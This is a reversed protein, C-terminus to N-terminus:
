PRSVCNWRFRPRRSVAPTTIEIAMDAEIVGDQFNVGTLVAFGDGRAPQVMRLAKRGRHEGTSVTIGHERIGEVNAFNFVQASPLEGAQLGVGAALALLAVQLRRPKPRFRSGTSSM